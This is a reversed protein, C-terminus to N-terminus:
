RVFQPAEGKKWPDYALAFEIRDRLPPHDFTWAVFFPNPDPYALAHEGLVQFAQAAAQSPDDILGHTIELGYVDAEHENVRSATAFVPELVLGMLSVFLVLLPLSAWDDVARIGLGSGWRAVAGRVARAGLFFVFFFVVTAFTLFKPIHNLVYHGLEHGFVFQTQPVTMQATTTDWVVIRKTAGLGTVYANATTVKESAKMLFMRDPPVDLGGRKAVAGLATVLEPHSRDLPEFTDFLPEILVPTIFITFVLIPVTALWGWLWWRRPSRRMVAYLGFVLPTAVVLEVLEGKLADSLWSGWGQVSLGYDRQLHQRYVELPLSLLDISLLVLPVFVLAQVFRKPTVREAFDRLRPAVRLRVVALLAGLSYLAAFFHLRVRIAYLATAKALLDPPLSYHTVPTIM